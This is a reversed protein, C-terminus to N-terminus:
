VVSRICQLQLDEKLLLLDTQRTYEEKVVVVGSMPIQKVQMLIRKRTERKKEKKKMGLVLLHFFLIQVSYSVLRKGVITPFSSPLSDPRKTPFYFYDSVPIMNMLCVEKEVLNDVLAVVDLFDLLDVVVINLLM